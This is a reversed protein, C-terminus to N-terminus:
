GGMRWAVDGHHLQGKTRQVPIYMYVSVKILENLTYWYVTHHTIKPPALKQPFDPFARLILKQPKLNQSLLGTWPRPM